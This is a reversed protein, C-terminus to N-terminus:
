ASMSIPVEEENPKPTLEAVTKGRDRAILRTLYEHTSLGQEKAANRAEQRVNDHVEVKFQVRPYLVTAPRGLHRRVPQSMDQDQLAPAVYPRLVRRVELYKRTRWVPLARGTITRRPPVPCASLRRQLEHAPASCAQVCM